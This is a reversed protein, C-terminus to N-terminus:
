DLERGGILRQARNIIAKHKEHIDPLDHAAQYYGSWAVALATVEELSAYLARVEAVPNLHPKFATKGV